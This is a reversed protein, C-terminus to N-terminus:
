HAWGRQHEVSVIELGRIYEGPAYQYQTYPTLFETTWDRKTKLVDTYFSVWKEKETGTAEDWVKLKGRVLYRYGRAIYTEVMLHRPVVQDLAIKRIAKEHKALGGLTRIDQLMTQYRYGLKMTRLTAVIRRASLGQALLAPIIVRSAARRVGTGLLIGAAAM